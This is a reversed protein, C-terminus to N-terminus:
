TCWIYYARRAFFMMSHGTLALNFERSLSVSHHPILIILGRTFRESDTPSLHQTQQRTHMNVNQTVDCCINCWIAYISLLALHSDIGVSVSCPNILNFKWFNCVVHKSVRGVNRSLFYQNCCTFISTGRDVRLCKKARDVRWMQTGRFSFQEM